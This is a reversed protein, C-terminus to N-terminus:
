LLAAVAEGATILAASNRGVWRVGDVASNVAAKIRQILSDHEENESVAPCLLLQNYAMLYPGELAPGVDKTFVQKPSLFEVVYTAVVRITNGAEMRGACVLVNESGTASVHYPHQAYSSSDDPMWWAYAGKQLPVDIWPRHPDNLKTITEMLQQANADKVLNSALTRAMVMRGGINAWQGVPSVLLSMATVRVNEVQGESALEDRVFAGVTQASVAPPIYGSSLQLGADLTNLYGVPNKLSGGPASYLITVADVDTVATYNGTMTSGPNVTVVGGDVWGTTEHRAFKFYKVEKGSNNIWFKLDQGAPVAAGWAQRGAILTRPLLAVKELTNLDECIMWGAKPNGVIPESEDWALGSASLGLLATGAQPYRPNSSQIILPDKVTPTCIVSFMGALNADYSIERTYTFRAV